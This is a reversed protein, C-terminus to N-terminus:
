GAAAQATTDPAGTASPANGDAGGANGNGANGDTDNAAAGPGDPAPKAPVPTASTAASISAPSAQHAVAEGWEEILKRQQARLANVRQQALVSLFSSVVPPVSTFIVWGLAAAGYIIFLAFVDAMINTAALITHSELWLDMLYPFLGCFNMSAVCFTAYKEKTRDIIYAVFTPLMGFFVLFVTPLAFILLGVMSVSVWLVITAKKRPNVPARQVQRKQPAQAM